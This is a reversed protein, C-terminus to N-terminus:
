RSDGREPAAARTARSAEETPTRPGAGLSPNQTEGAPPGLRTAAEAWLRSEALDVFEGDGVMNDAACRLLDEVVGPDADPWGEEVLALAEEPSMLPASRALVERTRTAEEALSRLPTSGLDGLSDLLRAAERRMQRVAALGEEESLEGCSISGQLQDVRDEVLMEVVDQLEDRLMVVDIPVDSARVTELDRRECEDRYAEVAASAGPVLRDLDGERLAFTTGGLWDSLGVPTGDCALALLPEEDYRHFPDHALAYRYRSEDMGLRARAEATTDVRITVLEEEYANPGSGLPVWFPEGWPRADAAKM